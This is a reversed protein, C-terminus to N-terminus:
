FNWSFKTIKGFEMTNAEKDWFFSEFCIDFTFGAMTEQSEDCVTDVINQDGCVNNDFSFQISQRAWDFANKFTWLETNAGPYNAFVVKDSGEIVQVGGNRGDRHGNEVFEDGFEAVWRIELASAFTELNHM